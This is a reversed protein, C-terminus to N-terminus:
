QIYITHFNVRNYLYAGTETIIRIFQMFYGNEKFNILKARANLISKHFNTLFAYSNTMFEYASSSFEYTIKTFEYTKKTFEYAIGDLEYAKLIFEYTNTDLEYTRKIFECAGRDLEYTNRNLECACNIFECTRRIFEHLWNVVYSARARVSFVGGAITTAYPYACGMDDQVRKAGGVKRSLIEVNNDSHRNSNYNARGIFSRCLPDVGQIRDPSASVLEAHCVIVKGQGIFADSGV